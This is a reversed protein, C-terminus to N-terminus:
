SSLNFRIIFYSTYRIIYRTASIALSGSPLECSYLLIGRKPELGRSVVASFLVHVWSKQYFGISHQLINSCDACLGCFFEM